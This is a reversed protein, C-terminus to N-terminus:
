SRGLRVHYKPSGERSPDSRVALGKCTSIKVLFFTAFSRRSVESREFYQHREQKRQKIIAGRSRHTTLVVVGIIFIGYVLSQAQASIGIAQVAIPVFAVTLAGFVVNIPNTLGGSIATGGVLAATIGPLLLDSGLGSASASGAQAVISIGTLGGTFGLIALRSGQAM